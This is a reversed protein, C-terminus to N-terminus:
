RVPSSSKSLMNKAWGLIKGNGLIKITHPGGINTDDSEMDIIVTGSRHTLNIKGDERKQDVSQNHHHQIKDVVYSAIVSPDERTKYEKM